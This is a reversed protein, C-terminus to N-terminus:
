YEHPARRLAHYLKHAGLACPSPPHSSNQCAHCHHRQTQPSQARLRQPCIVPRRRFPRVLISRLGREHLNRTFPQHVRVRKFVERFQAIVNARPHGSRGSLSLGFLPAHGLHLGDAEFVHVRFFILDPAPPRPARRLRFQKFRYPPRQVHIRHAPRTRRPRFSRFTFNDGRVEEIDIFFGLVSRFIGPFDNQYDQLARRLLIHIRQERSVPIEQLCGAFCTRTRHLTCFVNVFPGTSVPLTTPSIRPRSFGSCTSTTPACRSEQSRESPAVSLPVPEALTSPEASAITREPMLGRRVM